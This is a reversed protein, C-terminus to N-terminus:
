VAELYARIAQDLEMSGSLDCEAQVWRLLKEGRLVRHACRELEATREHAKDRWERLAFRCAALESATTM